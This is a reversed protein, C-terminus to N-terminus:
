GLTFMPPARSQLSPSPSASLSDILPVVSAISVLGPLEAPVSAALGGESTVQCAWACLSSQTDSDSHHSDSHHTTNHLLLCSSAALSLALYMGAVALAVASRKGWLGIGWKITINKRM